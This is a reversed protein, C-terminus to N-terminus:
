VNRIGAGCRTCFKSGERLFNGCNTCHKGAVTTMEQKQTPQSIIQTKGKRFYFFWVAIAILVIFILLIVLGGSSSGSGVVHGTIGPSTEGETREGQVGTKIEGSSSLYTIEKCGEEYDCFEGSGCSDPCCKVEEKDSICSGKGYDDLESKDCNSNVLYYNGNEEQCQETGGCDYDSICSKEFGCKFDDTCVVAKNTYQGKCEDSSCCDAKTSLKTTPILYCDNGRTTVEEFKTLSHDIPNCWVPKNNYYSVILSPREVWDYIFWYGEGVELQEPRLDGIINDDSPIYSFGYGSSSIADESVQMNKLINNNFLQNDKYESWIPNVNCFETGDEFKEGSDLRRKLKIEKYKVLIKPDGEPEGWNCSFDPIVRDGKHLEYNKLGNKNCEQALTDGWSFTNSCYVEEVGNVDLSLRSTTGLGTCTFDDRDLGVILCEEVECLWMEEDSIAINDSWKDTEECNVSGYYPRAITCDQAAVLSVLFIGVILFLIIKKM